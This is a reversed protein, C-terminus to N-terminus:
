GKAFVRQLRLNFRYGEPRNLAAAEADLNAFLVCGLASIAVAPGVALVREKSNKISVGNLRDDTLQQFFYGNFGARVSPLAQYSTAYNLHFAQGAQTNKAQLAEFPDDNVSNYLYHLRWSTEWKPQIFLTFAYYSTISYTNTGVNVSQAADYQGTPLAILTEFRSFYPRHFLTHGPWSIILPSLILDGVGTQEGRPGFSTQIDLHAIPVILGVGYFGGLVRDSTVYVGHFLNSWTDFTNAGPVRRGTGDNFHNATYGELIVPEFLVGPGSVGDILSTAGLNVPPESVQSSVCTPAVFMLLAPLAFAAFRVTQM